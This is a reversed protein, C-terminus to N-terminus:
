MSKWFDKKSLLQLRNFDGVSKIAENMNKVPKMYGEKFLYAGPTSPNSVYDFAILEFDDQVIDKDGQSKVSGVGRSSIGLKFGSKLLGKLTDGAPTDAIQVRGWLEKNNWWMEVVRHSVNALSVVASNGTWHSKGNHMVFFNGNKVRVCAVKDFPNKVKEITVFRKDLYIHSNTSINLIWKTKSSKAEILRPKIIEEQVLEVTGDSLVLEKEQIIVDNIYRDKPQESTINGHLGIKLLIESFDEILQKSTSALKKSTYGINKHFSTKTTGDGLHFGEFLLELLESNANKIEKPIYKKHSNGLPLLYNRLRADHICFDIKGSQYKRETYHLGLDDFCKKIKSFNHSKKQTIKVLNSREEGGCVGTTTGDALYLGLFFFWAKANLVLDKSYTSKLEGRLNPNINSVAPITFVTYNVGENWVGKKPIRWKNSRYEFLEQATKEFPVGDSTELIFRHNPTVILDIGRGKFHYMEGDYNDLIKKEIVQAEIEGTDQNLTLITENESIETINKWGSSTLISSDLSICDPHDLEGGAVNEKILEMYKDAERKLIDYPYVRGNKNLTDAKQLIGSMIIPQYKKEAEIIMERTPSEFTYYESIIYKDKYSNILDSMGTHKGYITPFISM